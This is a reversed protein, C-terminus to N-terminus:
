EVLAEGSTASRMQRTRVLRFFCVCLVYVCICVYVCVFVCMYMTYVDHTM